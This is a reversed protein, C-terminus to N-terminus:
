DIDVVRKYMPKRPKTETYPKINNIATYPKINNETYLKINNIAARNYCCYFVDDEKDSLDVTTSMTLEGSEVAVRGNKMVVPIGKKKLENYLHTELDVENLLKNYRVTVYM